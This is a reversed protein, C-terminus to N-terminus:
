EASPRLRRVAPSVVAPDAAPRDVRVDIQGQKRDVAASSLRKSWGTDHESYNEEQWELDNLNIMNAADSM